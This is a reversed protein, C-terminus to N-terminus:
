YGYDGARIEVLKGNEFRLYRMFADPGTNYTWEDVLITTQRKTAPETRETITEQRTQRVVPDGCKSVV